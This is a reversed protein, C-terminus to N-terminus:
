EYAYLWLRTPSYMDFRLSVKYKVPLTQIYSIVDFFRVDSEVSINIILRPKWKCICKRAGRLIEPFMFPVCIKIISPEEDLFLDDVTKIQVKKICDTNKKRSLRNSETSEDNLDLFMEDSHEGCGYPLVDINHCGRTLALLKNYSDPSPECGWIHDYGGDTKNLFLQITDGIWAGIDIFRENKTINLKPFEFIDKIVFDGDLLYQINQTINVQCFAELAERSKDDALNKMISRYNKENNAIWEDVGVSRYQLYPHAIIYIKHIFPLQEIECKKENHGHGLVVNILEYKEQLEKLSYIDNKIDSKYDPLNVFFGQIEIGNEKLRNKVKRAVVGNGWVFIPLDSNRLEEYTQQLIDMSDKEEKWM